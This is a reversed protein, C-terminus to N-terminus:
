LPSYQLWLQYNDNDWIIRGHDSLGDVRDMHDEEWELDINIETEMGLKVEKNYFAQLLPEFFLSWWNKSIVQGGDPFPSKYWRKRSMENYAYDLTM